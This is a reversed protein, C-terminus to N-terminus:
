KKSQIEGIDIAKIRKPNYFKGIELNGKTVIIQTKQTKPNQLHYMNLQVEQVVQYNACGSLCLMLVILIVVVLAVRVIKNEGKSLIGM